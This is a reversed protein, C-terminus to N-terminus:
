REIEKLRITFSLHVLPYLSCFRASPLRSWEASSSNVFSSFSGTWLTGDFLQAAVVQGAFVQRAFQLVATVECCRQCRMPICLVLPEPVRPKEDRGSLSSNDKRYFLICHALAQLSSFTNCSFLSLLFWM